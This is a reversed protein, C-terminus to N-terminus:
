RLHHWAKMRWEELPTEGITRSSDDIVTGIRTVRTGIRAVAEIAARVRAEPLAFLLEFDEGGLIATELPDLDGAEEIGPCVPITEPDVHCGAGSAELLRDLDTALGDSLDLMAHPRIEALAAAEAVRANGRLQLARLVDLRGGALKGRLAALGARAGGLCGTVCLADGPRAGTRLVPRTGVAEGTVTVTVSIETGGGIDGGVLAIGWQAAGAVLGDLLDEVWSVALDGRLAVACVAHLPRGCMAAIDSANAAMAKFGVDAGSSYRLDFDVGEVLMDTTMLLRPPASLLAADDGSWIDGSAPSGIRELVRAILAEEGIDSVTATRSRTM